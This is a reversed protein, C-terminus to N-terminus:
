HCFLDTWYDLGTTWDLSYLSVRSGSKTVHFTIQYPHFSFQANSLFSKRTLHYKRAILLCKGQHFVQLSLIRRM